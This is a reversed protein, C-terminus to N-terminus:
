RIKRTSLHELTPSMWQRSQVIENTTDSVWFFNRFTYSSNRCDEQMLQTAVKRSGLDIDWPGQRSVACVFSLTTAQDFGDIITQFRKSAGESRAKVLSRTQRADAALLDNGFGRSGEIVGDVIALSLGEGSIWTETGDDSRLQRVFTTFANKRNAVSVVQAPAGRDALAMFEATPTTAAKRNFVLQLKSKQEDSSSCSAMMLCCVLMIAHRM